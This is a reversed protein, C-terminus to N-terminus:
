ATAGAWTGTGVLKVAKYALFFAAVAVALAVFSMVATTQVTSAAQKATDKFGDLLERSKKTNYLM